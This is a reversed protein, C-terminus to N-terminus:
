SQLDLRDERAVSSSATGSYVPIPCEGASTPITDLSRCNDTIDTNWQGNM